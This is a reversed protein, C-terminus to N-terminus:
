LKSKYAWLPLSAGPARGGMSKLPNKINKDEFMVRRVLFLRPRIFFVKRTDREFWADGRLFFNKFM